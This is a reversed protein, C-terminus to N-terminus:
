YLFDSLSVRFSYYLNESYWIMIGIQLKSIKTIYCKLNRKDEDQVYMLFVPYGSDTNYVFKPITYPVVYGQPYIIYDINDLTSANDDKWKITITAFDEYDSNNYTKIYLSNRYNRQAFCVSFLLTSLLILTIKKM